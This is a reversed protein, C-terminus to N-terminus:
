VETQPFVDPAIVPVVTDLVRFLKGDQNLHGARTFPPDGSDGLLDIWGVEHGPEDQVSYAINYAAMQEAAVASVSVDIIDPNDAFMNTYIRTMFLIRASTVNLGSKAALPRLDQLWCAWTIGSGPASKPEHTQVKDFRNSRRAVSELLDQAAVVVKSLGDTGFPITM